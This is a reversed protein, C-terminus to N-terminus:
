RLLRRCRIIEPELEHIPISLRKRKYNYCKVSIVDIRGDTYEVIIDPDSQGALKQVDLVGEIDEQYQKFLFEEYTIGMVRAVEGEVERKWNSFTMQSFKPNGEKIWKERIDDQSIEEI